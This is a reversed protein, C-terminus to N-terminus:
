GDPQVLKTGLDGTVRNGWRGIGAEKVAAPPILEELGDGSIDPISAAEPGRHALGIRIDYKM